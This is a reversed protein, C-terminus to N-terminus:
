IVTAHVFVGLSVVRITGARKAYLPYVAMLPNSKKTYGAAGLNGIQTVM